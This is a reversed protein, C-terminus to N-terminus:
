KRRFSSGDQGILSSGDHGVLNMGGAAVMSNAKNILGSGGNSVVGTKANSYIGSNGASLFGGYIDKLIPSAGFPLPLTKGIYQKFCSKCVVKLKYKNKPASFGTGVPFIGMCGDCYFFNTKKNAMIIRREISSILRGTSDKKLKRNSISKTKV